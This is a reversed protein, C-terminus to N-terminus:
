RRRTAEVRALVREFNGSGLAVLERESWGRRRLESMLAQLLGAHELGNISFDGMGDFDSGIGVHDRGAVNAIHEIQDAVMAVNVEPQPNARDWAEMGQRVAAEDTSHTALLEAYRREGSSWWRWHRTTVLYPALPVMAVGGNARLSRLTSDSLNRPTDALARAASHSFIVPATSLAIAENATEESAHSLDVLMGLRNMEAVVARGLQSLGDHAPRAISRSQELVMAGDGLDNHHDYVILMSRVGRSYAQRLKEISGEIHDGGEIALMLGIRGSSRARRLDQVTRALMISDPHRAALADAWDLAVNLRAFPDPAGPGRDSGVTALMGFVGGSRWRPLDAQGPLGETVDLATASWGPQARAYHIAFDSHGDFVPIQSSSRDPESPLHQCGNLLLCALILKRYM